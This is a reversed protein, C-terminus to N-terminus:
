NNNKLKDAAYNNNFNNWYNIIYQQEKEKTLKQQSQKQEEVKLKEKEIQDKLEQIEAELNAHLILLQKM